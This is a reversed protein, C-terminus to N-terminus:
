DVVHVEHHAYDITNLAGTILDVPDIIGVDGSIIQHDNIDLEAEPNKTFDANRFPTGGDLGM